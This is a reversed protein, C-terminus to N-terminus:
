TYRFVVFAIVAFFLFILAAYPFHGTKEGKVINMIKQPAVGMPAVGTFVRRIGTLITGTFLTTLFPQVKYKAIIAGNLFGVVLGAMLSILIGVALGTDGYSKFCAMFIVAAGQMIAAVSLDVGGSSIVFLQGLALIGLSS